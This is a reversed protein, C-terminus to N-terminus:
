KFQDFFKRAESSCLPAEYASHYNKYYTAPDSILVNGHLAEITSNVDVLSVNSGGRSRFDEYAAQTHLNFKVVPDGSGSCLKTPSKPNWGLLDQKKAAVITTNNPNTALDILYASKFIADRAAPPTTATSPLKGLDAPFNVVPFIDGIFTDYPANFVDSATIYLDGYVKQWATIQYPVFYQVGLIPNAAGDILAQAVQYAGALHATAVLNFEDAHDREIARHTAMSAHGGQSFGSVMVKGNLEVGLSPAANRAARISDIVTNAETDAHTYPHYPYNSLAYGLYDTAVVAYGQSAFFTMLLMATPDSLDMANTHAKELNTGRAFAVLPLPGQCASDTGSPIFLAASANSMEGAQAGPTQYNIQLVKVDCKAPGTLAQLGNGATVSDLQSISQSSKEAPSGILKGRPSIAEPGCGALLMGALVVLGYKYYNM